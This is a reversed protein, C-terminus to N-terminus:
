NEVKTRCYCSAKIPTDSKAWAKAFREETAKAEGPRGLRRQCEALGRLAWGNDPHQKLDDTYTVEADAIRGQELQLAGLAHRVPEMWGWPEDYHLADDRRVAEALLAFARGYDGLRYEVEGEAFPRGVDLVTRATNNGFMATEPVKACAAEFEARENGADDVDGLAAYAVTRGFRWYAAAVPLGDPPPSEDLMEKWMGFRVLVTYPASMYADLFDPMQRALDLPIERLVGQAADLALKRQGAFMAAWMLFHYNHARYIAYFNNRGFRDVYKKDAEIARENADIADQYHGIRIDIHAPMHVLHSCDPVLDRLRNAAVLAKAPEPSAEMTHVYFHNAGPHDPVMRMVTELDTMIEKTEPRPDGQPSWLDWPRLDMLAEATLAGVDPDDPHRHWVARMANAYASDLPARDTPAPDAYRGELARILDQEVPSGNGLHRMAEQEAVFAAKSAEPDLRPNNIHPGLALAIGWYVAACDPDYRLAEKYAAIAAEHSFGWHLTLGQDFWRQAEPSTTKIARHYHGLNMFGSAAGRTQQSRSGALALFAAALVLVRWTRQM